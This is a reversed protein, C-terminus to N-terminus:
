LLLLLLTIIGSGFRIEIRPEMEAASIPVV